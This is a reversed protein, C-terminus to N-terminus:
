PRTRDPAPHPTAAPADHQRLGSELTSLLYAFSSDIDYPMGFGSAHELSTFGHLAARIARIAHLASDGDLGYGRVVAIMLTTLDTAVARAPEDDEAPAQLSAAYRGPHEHAYRRYAHAVPYLADTGARGVAADRLADALGRLGDLGLRRQLDALSSVHKYLSPVRVDLQAALTALTLAPYGDRDALDGARTVVVAPTLGARPM